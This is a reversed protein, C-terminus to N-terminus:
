YLRLCAAPQAPLAADDSGSTCPSAPKCSHASQWATDEKPINTSVGGLLGWGANIEAPQEAGSVMILAAASTFLVVRPVELLWATNPVSAGCAGERM